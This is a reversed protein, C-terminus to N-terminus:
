RIARYDVIVGPSRLSSGLHTFVERLRVHRQAVVRPGFTLADKLAEKKFSKKLKRPLKNFYDRGLHDMWGVRDKFVCSVYTRPRHGRRRRVRLPGGHLVDTTLYSKGSRLSYFGNNRISKIAM